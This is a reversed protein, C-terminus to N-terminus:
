CVWFHGEYTRHNTEAVNLSSLESDLSLMFNTMNRGSAHAILLRLCIEDHSDRIVKWTFAKWMYSKCKNQKPHYEPCTPSSDCKWFEREVRGGATIVLIQIQTRESRNLQSLLLKDPNKTMKIEVSKCMDFKPKMKRCIWVDLNTGEVFLNTVGLGIVGISSVIELFDTTSFNLCRLNIVLPSQEKVFEVFLKICGVSMKQDDLTLNNFKSQPIKEHSIREWAPSISAVNFIDEPSLYQWIHLLLEDPLNTLSM